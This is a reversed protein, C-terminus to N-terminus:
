VLLRMRQDRVVPVEDLEFHADGVEVIVRNLPEGARALQAKKRYRAAENLRGQQQLVQSRQEAFHAAQEGQGLYRSIEYVHGLYALIGDIDEQQTCLRLATAAALLSKQIEGSHFYCEALQGYTLPLCADRGTGHLGEFEALAAELSKAAPRYLLRDMSEQAQALTNQWKVLPNEGQSGSLSALLEPRGLEDAFFTAVAILGDAYNQLAAADNRIDEPVIRWERFDGSIRDQYTSCLRTLLIRDGSARAAFLLDRLQNADHIEPLRRRRLFNLLKL